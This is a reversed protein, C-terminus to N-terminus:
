YVGKMRGEEAKPRVGIFEGWCQQLPRRGSGKAGRWEGWAM